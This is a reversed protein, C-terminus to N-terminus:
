MGTAALASLFDGPPQYGVLRVGALEKGAPDFFVIGPPGFLKFRALLARDDPSGATVDARLLLWGSLKERVRPDAFTEHEMRRCTVCWDAYFDLMVPQGASAIRRELEDLSRVRLFAPARAEADTAARAFAALPRLPDRAGSLAGALLAAGFLLLIVGIAKGFIQGATAQPPLPDDARLFDAPVILLLAWGLM